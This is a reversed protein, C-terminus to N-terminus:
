RLEAAIQRLTQRALYSTPVNTKNALKKLDPVVLKAVSPVRSLLDIMENHDGGALPHLRAQMINLATIEKPDIQLMAVAAPGASGAGREMWQTLLPKLENPLQGIQALARLATHAHDQRTELVQVIHPIFPKANTGCSGLARLAIFTHNSSSLLLNTAAPIIQQSYPGPGIEAIANLLMAQPFNTFSFTTPLSAVLTPLANTANVGFAGIVMFYGNAYAPDSKLQRLLEEVCTQFEPRREFAVNNKDAIGSIVFLLESRAISPNFPQGAIGTLRGFKDFLKEFPALASSSRSHLLEPILTPAQQMLVERAHTRNTAALNPNGLDRVWASLPKGQVITEHRTASTRLFFFAAGIVGIILLVSAFSKRWITM